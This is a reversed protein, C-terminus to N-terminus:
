FPKNSLFDPLFDGASEPDQIWGNSFGLAQMADVVQNYEAATIKRGLLPHTSVYSTPYYQSMLSIYVEPSLEEALWRLLNISDGQQGPLVLHRIILGNLALGNESLIVSRGKQRYMERIAKKAAVPYDASDSFSKALSTEAYKLDPLYVDILGELTRISEPKDYGNTNYVTVPHYGREWLLRIIAKVHPLFHTPTVFGVSEIGQDLIGTVTSVVVELTMPKTNTNKRNRSIQFNQCYLCQLNCHSFFINCIGNAGSVAPEEGHHICISSIRYGADSLCYGMEGALRNVGCERPCLICHELEKM